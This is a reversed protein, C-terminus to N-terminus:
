IELLDMLSAAIAHDLAAIHRQRLALTQAATMGVPISATTEIIATSAQDSGDVGAVVVAESNKIASKASGLYNNSRKPLTRYFAMTNPSAVSHNPGRYTSKNLEETLRYFSQTSPTGNNLTDVSLDIQNPLM